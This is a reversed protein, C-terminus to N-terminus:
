CACSLYGRMLLWPFAFYFRALVHRGSQFTLPFARVYCQISERHDPAIPIRAVTPGSGHASEPALPWSSVLDPLGTVGWALSCTCLSHGLVSPGSRLASPFCVRRGGPGLLLVVWPLGAPWAPFCFCVPPRGGSIPLLRTLVRRGRTWSFCAFSLVCLLLFSFEWVDSAAFGSSPSSGRRTYSEQSSGM